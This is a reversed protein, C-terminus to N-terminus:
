CCWDYEDHFRVWQPNIDNKHQAEIEFIRKEIDRIEPPLSELELEKNMRIEARLRMCEEYYRIALDQM